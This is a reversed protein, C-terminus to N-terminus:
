EGDIDPESFTDRWRMLFDRQTGKDLAVLLPPALPISRIASQAIRSEAPDTAYILGVSRLISQGVDSLLFDLFAQSTSPNRATAPIMYARSLILTYDEPLIAGVNAPKANEVYSGLVNYAILFDGNSVADIIEASCCTATADSRAFGELLSGFTTAELSDVYAFLYGLGSAEIDYTAIKGRFREPSERLMDLLEFRSVPVEEPTIEQNNYITVAPEQTFGWIEDRWRRTLPLARTQDSAYPRACARNVLSVMLHVASSIVADAPATENKCAASANAHLANSGWQEYTIEVDPVSAIFADLVPEFISIDTTSRIVFVTNGSGFHAVAEQAQGSMPLLVLWLAACLPRIM